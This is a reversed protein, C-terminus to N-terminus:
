PASRRVSVEASDVTVLSGDAVRVRLAGREDVGEGVAEFDGRPDLIRLPVDRLLDNAAYEDAFAAFGHREFTRLGEALETVVVTAIHNRGPPDGGVISALDTIPQGAREHVSDPLRINLGVGIVAACPGSYEGSLEVLIGALKANGALVDNPWKLGATRIGLEGLARVLMVGVALSLGSLSAFGGDFRKLVSLYLNMGPPSLWPRGRRGRGASQTEAMVFALDDLVPIRRAIESSTSDIEWHVELMGVQASTGPALGARIRQGDLLETPWPLRYGGGVKAEVPVGKLRLAEIQKWVAARTVGAKRALAAGSVADGGALADLLDRALM